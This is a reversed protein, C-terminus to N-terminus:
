NYMSEYYKFDDEIETLRENTTASNICAVMGQMVLIDSKISSQAAIASQAGSSRSMGRSAYDNIKTQLNNYAVSAVNLCTNVRNLLNGQLSTDLTATAAAPSTSASAVPSTTLDTGSTLYVAQDKSSYDVDYGVAEAIARVPLYTTGDVVFPEVSNGNADTPITRVGNVYIKIGNYTATIQRSTSEAFSPVILAMVLLCVAIGLTFWKISNLKKM